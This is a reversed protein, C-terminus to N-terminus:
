KGMPAELRTLASHLSVRADSELAMPDLLSLRDIADRGGIRGIAWIAHEVLMADDSNLQTSVAELSGPGGTNGLAVLINRRVFRMKRGPVYFRAFEEDLETDSMALLDTLDVRGRVVTASELARIGPPCADLCDDCGYIRDGVAERLELPLSGRQQLLAAICRRADLVGPAVLAGTPCAPICAACSGCSRADPVSPELRASTVITGLLIWPGFQHTLVMSNKGWWGIGARVAAARDVLRNDDVLVESLHGATRLQSAVEELAARLPAYHDDTSFRAIRGTGPDIPGPSGAEPLYSRAGVVLREAWPFSVRIDTSRRPDTFTFGLRDSLGASKRHELSRRVDEFPEVTCVGARDLGQRYLENVIAATDM